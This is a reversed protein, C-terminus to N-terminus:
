KDGDCRTCERYIWIVAGLFSLIAIPLGVFVVVQALVYEYSM